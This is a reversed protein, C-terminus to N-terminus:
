DSVEILVTARGPEGGSRVGVHVAGRGHVLANDLLNIVM